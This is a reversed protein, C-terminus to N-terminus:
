LASFEVLSKVRSTVLEVGRNMHAILMTNLSEMDIIWSDQDMRAALLAAFYRDYQGFLTYRNIERGESFDAPVEPIGSEELSLCFGVRCLINPTIGTRGKLM